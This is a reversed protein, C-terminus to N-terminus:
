VQCQIFVAFSGVSNPGFWHCFVDQCDTRHMLNEVTHPSSSQLQLGYM